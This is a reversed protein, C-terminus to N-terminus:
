QSQGGPTKVAPEGLQKVAAGAPQALAFQEDTLVGNLQLKVMHLVIDYEERPRRIEIQSPFQIGGYDEYKEYRADTALNGFDDYVLQRHPLLDTRSFIIKRSLFWGREGKRAIDLHYAGQEVPHGEKDRVIEEDNELVAIEKEPDVERLLLADYIHQPRLNEISQQGPDVTQDNRGVLFRNKPPIWLKFVQGDSVMDFATNRVVPMLGIMRLMAPKRALVYGRIEEYDTIKGKRAGGVTTDIDVTAQMSRVKAAERNVYDILDQQTATKLPAGTVVREVKHARFLCGQLPWALALLLVLRIPASRIPSSRSM